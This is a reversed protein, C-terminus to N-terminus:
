RAFMLAGALSCEAQLMADLEAGENIASGGFAKTIM